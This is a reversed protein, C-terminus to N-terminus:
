VYCPGGRLCAYSVDIYIFYQARECVCVCVRICAHMGGKALHYAVSNGIVGGGMIVVKARSPLPKTESFDGLPGAQQM